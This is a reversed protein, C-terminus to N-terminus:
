FNKSQQSQILSTLVVFFFSFHKPDPIVKVQYAENKLKEMDIQNSCVSDNSFESEDHYKFFGFYIVM